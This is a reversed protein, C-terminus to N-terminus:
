YPWPQGDVMIDCAFRAVGTEWPVPTYSDLDPVAIMDHDHPGQGMGWVAGGAFGASGEVFLEFARAPVGKCRPTGHIDVYQALLYDIQDHQLRARIEDPTMAEEPTLALRRRGGERRGAPERPFPHHLVARDARAD